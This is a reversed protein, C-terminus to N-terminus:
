IPCVFYHASSESDDLSNQIIKHQPPCVIEDTMGWNARYSEYLVVSEDTRNFFWKDKAFREGLFTRGHSCGGYLSTANERDAKTIISKM